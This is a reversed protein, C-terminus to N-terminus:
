IRGAASKDLSDSKEGIERPEEVLGYREDLNEQPIITNCNCRDHHHGYECLPGARDKVLMQVSSGSSTKRGQNTATKPCLCSHRRQLPRPSPSPSHDKPMPIDPCFGDWEEESSTSDHRVLPFPLHEQSPLRLHCKSCCGPRHGGSSSLRRLQPHIIENHGQSNEANISNQVTGRGRSPLTTTPFMGIFPDYQVM